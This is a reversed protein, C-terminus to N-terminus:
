PAEVEEGVEKPDFRLDVWRRAVDITSSTDPVFVLDHFGCADTILSWVLGLPAERDEIRFYRQLDRVARLAFAHIVHESETGQFQLCFYGDGTWDPDDETLYGAVEFRLNVSQLRDLVTAPTLDFVPSMGGYKEEYDEWADKVRAEIEKIVAEAADIQALPHDLEKYTVPKM